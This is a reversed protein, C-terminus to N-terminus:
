PAQEDATCDRLAMISFRTQFYALDGAFQGPVHPITRSWSVSQQCDRAPRCTGKCMKGGPQDIQPVNLWESPLQSGVLTKTIFLSLQGIDKRTAVVDEDLDLERTGPFHQRRPQGQPRHRPLVHCQREDPEQQFETNKCHSRQGEPSPREVPLRPQEKGHANHCQSSENSTVMPPHDGAAHPQGDREHNAGHQHRDHCEVKEHYVGLGLSKQRPM